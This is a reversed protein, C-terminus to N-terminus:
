RDAGVECSEFAFTYVGLGYGVPRLRLDHHGFHRNMVLEYARPVDVVVYALGDADFHIDNGADQRALPKGDQDVYLTIPKGGEPKLVSVVQIAHYRLDVHDSAAEDARAHVMAQEANFWPGQLYVFGDFHNRGAM